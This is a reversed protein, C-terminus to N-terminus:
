KSGFLSIGCSNSGSVTFVTDGPNSSNFAVTGSATLSGGVKAVGSAQALATVDLGLSALDANGGGGGLAALQAALDNSAQQPRPLLQSCPVPTVKWALSGSM